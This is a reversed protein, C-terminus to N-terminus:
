SKHSKISQISKNGQLSSKNSNSFSNQRELNNLTQSIVTNSNNDSKLNSTRRENVIVSEREIM